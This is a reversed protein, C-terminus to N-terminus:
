THEDEIHILCEKEYTEQVGGRGTKRGRDIQLVVWGGEEGKKV